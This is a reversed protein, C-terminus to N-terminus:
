GDLTDAPAAPGAMQWVDVDHDIIPDFVSREVAMGLGAAVAQSRDNAPHILAIAEGFGWEGFALDRIARAGESAYGHGWAARALRWGFEPRHAVEPIFWPYAAGVFGVLRGALPEAPKAEVAFLGFGNDSWMRAMRDHFGLIATEDSARTLFRTVEPDRNIELMPERDREEWRRLILRGTEFREVSM